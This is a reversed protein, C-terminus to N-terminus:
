KRISIKFKIVILSVVAFLISLTIMLDYGPLTILPNSSGENCNYCEDDIIYIRYIDDNQSQDWVSMGRLVGNIDYSFWIDIQDWRLGYYYETITEQRGDDWHTDSSSHTNLNGGQPANNARMNYLAINDTPIFWDTGAKKNLAHKYIKYHNNQAAGYNDFNSGPEWLFINLDWYEPTDTISYIEVKLEDNDEGFPTKDFRQEYLWNNMYEIRYYFVDGENVGLSFGEQTLQKYGTINIDDIFVGPYYNDYNDCQFLFILDVAEYGGLASLDIRRQSWGGTDDLDQCMIEFNGYKPNFYMNLSHVRAMISFGDEPDWNTDQRYNFDLYISQMNSFNLNELYISDTYAIDDFTANQKNYSFPTSINGCWMSYSSSWSDITTRHWFNDGGLGSWEPKLGSDFNDDFIIGPPTIRVILDYTNSSDYNYIWIYYWGTNDVLYSIFENDDDSTSSDRWNANNNYYLKVNLNGNDNEFLLSVTILEGANAWFRFWDDDWGQCDLNSYLTGPTITINQSIYDNDEYLDSTKPSLTGEEEKIGETSTLVTTNSLNCMILLSSVVFLSVISYVGLKKM